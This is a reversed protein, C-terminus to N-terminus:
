SLSNGKVHCPEIGLNPVFLPGGKYSAGNCIDAIPRATLTPFVGVNGVDVELSFNSSLKFILNLLIM